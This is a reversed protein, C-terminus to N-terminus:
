LSKEVKAGGRELRVGIYDGKDEKGVRIDGDIDWKYEEKTKIGWREEM